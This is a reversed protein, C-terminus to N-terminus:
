FFQPFGDIELFLNKINKMKRCFVLLLMDFGFRAGLVTALSCVNICKESQALIRKKANKHTDTNEQQQLTYLEICMHCILACLLVCSHVDACVCVMACISVCAFACILM